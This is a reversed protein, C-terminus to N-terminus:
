QAALARRRASLATHNAQADGGRREGGGISQMVLFPKDKLTAWDDHFRRLLAGHAAKVFADVLTTVAREYRASPLVDCSLSALVCEPYEETVDCRRADARM